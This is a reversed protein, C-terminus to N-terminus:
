HAQIKLAFGLSYQDAFVLIKNGFDLNGVLFYFVCLKHVGRRSGLPNCLEFEDSYLHIRLYMDSDLREATNQWMRGDTFDCLM